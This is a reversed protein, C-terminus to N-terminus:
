SLTEEKGLGDTGHPCHYNGVKQSSLPVPSHSSYAFPYDTWIASYRILFDILTSTFCLLHQFWISPAYLTLWLFVPFHQFLSYVSFLSTREPSLIFVYIFVPLAKRDKFDKIAYVPSQKGQQQRSWKLSPWLVETHLQSFCYYYFWRSTILWPYHLIVTVLDKFYFEM